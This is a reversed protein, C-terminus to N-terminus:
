SNTDGGVEEDGPMAERGAEVRKNKAKAMVFFHDPGARPSRASPQRYDLVPISILM